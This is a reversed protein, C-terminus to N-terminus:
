YPLTLYSNVCAHVGVLEAASGDVFEVTKRNSAKLAQSVIPVIWAQIFKDLSVERVIKRSGDPVHPIILNSKQRKLHDSYLAKITQLNFEDWDLIQSDYLYDWRANDTNSGTKSRASDLSPNPLDLFEGITRTSM